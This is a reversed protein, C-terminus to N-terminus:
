DNSKTGNSQSPDVATNSESPITITATPIEDPMPNKWTSEGTMENFYYNEGSKAELLIWSNAPRVFQDDYRKVPKTVGDSYIVNLWEGDNDKTITDVIGRYWKNKSSSFVEVASGEQWGKPVPRVSEEDYRNVEKVIKDGSDVTYHV